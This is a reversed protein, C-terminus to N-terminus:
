GLSSANFTGDLRYYSGVNTSSTADPSPKMWVNSLLLSISSPGIATVEVTGRPLGGTTGDPGTPSSDESISYVTSQKQFRHVKVNDIGIVFKDGVQIASAKSLSISLSDPYNNSTSGTGASSATLALSTAGSSSLTRTGTGNSASFPVSYSGYNRSLQVSSSPTPTVTPTATRTATPTATTTATPQATATATPQATITPRPTATAGTTPGSSGGGCGPLILALPLLLAAGAACTITFRKM